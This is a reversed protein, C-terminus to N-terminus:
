YHYLHPRERAIGTRIDAIKGTYTYEIKVIGLWSCM